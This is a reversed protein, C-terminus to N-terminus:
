YNTVEIGGFVCAGKLLIRKESDPVSNNFTRKDEVGGFVASIENKVDWNSPIILKTGGFVNNVELIVPHQIDSQMFNIESGGMFSVIEGGKFNKSQINKKIGGFIAQVDIYEGNDNTTADPSVNFASNSAGPDNLRGRGLFRERRQCQHKPRFIFILGLGILIIPILYNHFDIGPISQDALFISGILIMIVSGPNRFKSRIGSLFGIAILLVPWTFIWAPIPAGMKYALLLLGACILVIGGWIRSGRSGGSGRFGQDINEQEM